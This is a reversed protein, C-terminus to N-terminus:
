LVDAIQMCCNKEMIEMKGCVEEYFEVGVCVVVAVRDPLSSKINLNIMLILEESIGNMSIPESYASVCLKNLTTEIPLHKHSKEDFVYDSFTVLCLVLRYHTAGAVKVIGSKITFAPVTLAIEKRGNKFSLNYPAKFVTDFKKNEKFQFGCVLHKNTLLEISRKGHEGNGHHILDAFLSTVHGTLHNDSVTELVSGFAKRFCAAVSSAAGFENYNERVEKFAPSKKLKKKSPASSNRVYYEGNMEYYIKGDIFGTMKNPGKQKAM